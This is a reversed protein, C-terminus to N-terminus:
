FENQNVYRKSFGERVNCLQNLFPPYATNTDLARLEEYLLCKM